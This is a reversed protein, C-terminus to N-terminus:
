EQAKKGKEAAVRPRPPKTTISSKNTTPRQPGLKIGFAEAIGKALRAAEYHDQINRQINNGNKLRGRKFPLETGDASVIELSVDKFFTVDVLASVTRNQSDIIRVPARNITFPFLKSAYRFGVLCRADLRGVAIRVGRPEELELQLVDNPLAMEVFGIRKPDTDRNRGIIQAIDDIYRGLSPRTEFGAL